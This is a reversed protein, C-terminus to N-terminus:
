LKDVKKLIAYLLYLIGSLICMGWLMFITDM